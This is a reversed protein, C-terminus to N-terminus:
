AAGLLEFLTPQTYTPRATPQPPEPETHAQPATLAATFRALSERERVAQAIAAWVVGKAPDAPKSPEGRKGMVTPVTDDGPSQNRNVLIVTPTGHGPIYCGSTDIVWTLDLGALFEEIYRKGFERKMFSSATLQACWGGPRLLETMRAHFPLALSYTGNCVQRYRARVAERVEPDKVTVYPPNAVVVDYAGRQLLPEDAALLADAAAVHIPLAALEAATPDIHERRLLARAMVLLRYTTVAAAYPDLDVGHVVNLAAHVRELDPTFAPLRPSADRSSRCLGLHQRSYARVLTEVLIHGTGCGPDIMRIRPGWEEYAHDFSIDLLLDTVFKPTQCLARGKRAEESLHQYLDGLQYGAPLRDVPDGVGHSGWMGNASALDAQTLAASLNVAPDTLSKLGPHLVALRDVDRALDGTREILGVQQAHWVLAGTHVAHAAAQPGVMRALAAAAAQGEKITAAPNAMLPDGTRGPICTPAM